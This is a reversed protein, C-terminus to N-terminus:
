CDSFQQGYRCRRVGMLGPIMCEPYICRSSSTIINCRNKRNKKDKTQKILCKNMNVIM